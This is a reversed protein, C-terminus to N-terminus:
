AGWVIAALVFVLNHFNCVVSFEMLELPPFEEAPPVPKWLSAFMICPLVPCSLVPRSARPCVDERQWPLRLVPRHKTPRAAAAAGGRRRGLHALLPRSGGVGAALWGPAASSGPRTCFPLPHQLQLGDDPSTNRASAPPSFCANKQASKPSGFIIM